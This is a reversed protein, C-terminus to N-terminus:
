HARSWAQKLARKTMEAVMHRKYEVPGRMDPAPDCAEM